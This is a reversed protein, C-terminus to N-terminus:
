RLEVALLTSVGPHQMTVGYLRDAAQMTRKNHTIVIFQSAGSMRRVLEMFRSVNADDLPADVEDLICFPSPRWSFLAFILAVASLAKEGGSLLSMAELRKGPPRVVIEVGSVAIDDPATLVMRGEGGGFLQPIIAAFERQVAEFTSLFKGRSVRELREITQQLDKYSRELDAKQAGLFEAREETARLEEAVGAGGTGVKELLVRLSALRDRLEEDTGDLAPASLDDLTVQYREAVTQRLNEMQTRIEVLEMEAQVKADRRGDLQLILDQLRRETDIREAEVRRVRDELEAQKACLDRLQQQVQLREASLEKLVRAATAEKESREQLSGMVRTLREFLSSEEEELRALSRVLADHRERHTALAVELGRLDRELQACKGEAAASRAELAERTPELESVVRHLRRLRESADDLQADVETRRGAVRHREREAHELRDLLRDREARARDIDKRSEVSALSARQLEAELSTLSAQEERLLASRERYRGERAELRGRLEDLAHTLEQILRRRALIEESPSHEVGGTVVGRPDITEGGPTVFLLGEGHRQYYNLGAELSPVLVVQSLLREVVPRYPQDSEVLEALPRLDGNAKDSAGTGNSCAGQLAIFSGRGLQEEKLRHVAAVTQATNEVIVCQLLDGLAAAVARELSAPVDIVDAVVARALRSGNESSMLKQVGPKFGEYRRRLEELTELRSHLRLCEETLTEIERGQLEVEAALGSVAAEKRLREETLITHRKQALIARTRARVLQEEVRKLQEAAKQQEERYHNEAALLDNWERRLLRVRHEFDAATQRLEVEKRQLRTLDSRIAFARARQWEFAERTRECRFELQLIRRAVEGRQMAERQRTESLRELQLRIATLEGEAGRVQDRGEREQREAFAIREAIKELEAELQVRRERVSSLNELAEREKTRVEELHREAEACEQRAVDVEEALRRLGRDVDEIRAELRARERGILALELTRIEQEAARAQEARKALRRLYNQQRDLERLIDAVRHLNERTRDLKREAALKRSRFLTTGAAEEIWIRRDEAKAAILQEVKGQEIIAYSRSGVGSGLFLETVDRLRCPRDNILYEAEGSRYLRRTVRIEAYHRLIDAALSDQELGDLLPRSNGVELTLAVEAVNSPPLQDSGKFLVDEMQAGRLLRPSQEGLAWRIADVVNSKGCGNPGVIATVGAAFDVVTRHPFSKFGQIQLQKLRM